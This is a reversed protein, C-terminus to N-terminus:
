KCEPNKWISITLRTNCNLIIQILEDKQKLINNKIVPWDTKATPKGDFTSLYDGQINSYFRTVNESTSNWKAPISSYPYYAKLQSGIAAGSVEWKPYQDNAAIFSKNIDAKAKTDNQLRSFNYDNSIQSYSKVLDDLKKEVIHVPMVMNMVADNIKGVLETKIELEKENVQLLATLQPILFSSIAAGVALLILPHSLWEKIGRKQNKDKESSQKIPAGGQKAGEVPEGCYRCFRMRSPDVQKRCNVCYRIESKDM